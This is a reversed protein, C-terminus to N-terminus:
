LNNEELITDILDTVAEDMYEEFEPLVKEVLHKGPVFGLRQGGNKYRIMKARSKWNPRVLEYGFEQLHWAHGKNGKAEPYFYSWFVDNAVNVPSMKFGSTIFATSEYTNAAEDKLDDMFKKTIEKMGKQFEKPALNAAHQIDRALESLGTIQVNISSGM